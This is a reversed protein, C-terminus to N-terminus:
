WGAPTPASSSKPSHALGNCRLPPSTRQPSTGGAHPSGCPTAGEGAAIDLATGAPLDETLQEVWINPAASWVLESGEYRENWATSDM